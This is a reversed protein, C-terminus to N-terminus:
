NSPEPSNSDLGAAALDADLNPDYDEYSKAQNLAIKTMLQDFREQKEEESLSNNKWIEKVEFATQIIAKITLATTIASM